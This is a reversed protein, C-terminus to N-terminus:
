YLRAQRDGLVGTAGLLPLLMISGALVGILALYVRNQREVVREAELQRQRGELVAVREYVAGLWRELDDEFAAELSM